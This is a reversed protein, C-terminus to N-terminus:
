LYLFLYSRVAQMVADKQTDTFSSGGWSVNGKSELLRPSIYNNAGGGVIDTFRFAQTDVIGHEKNIVQVMLGNYADTFGFNHFSIRVNTSDNLRGIVTKDCFFKQSLVKDDKLFDRMENECVTM